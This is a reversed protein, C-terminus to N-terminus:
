STKAGANIFVARSYTDKGCKHPTNWCSQDALAQKKVSYIDSEDAREFAGPWACLVYSTPVYFLEIVGFSLLVDFDVGKRSFGERDGEFVARYDIQGLAHSNQQAKRAVGEEDLTAGDKDASEHAWVTFTPRSGRQTHELEDDEGSRCPTKRFIFTM